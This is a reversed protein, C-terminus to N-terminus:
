TVFKKSKINGCKTCQLTYRKGVPMSSFAGDCHITAAEIIKWEHQCAHFLWYWIRAFM